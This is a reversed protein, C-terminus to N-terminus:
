RLALEVSRTEGPGVRLETSARRGDATRAVLRLPEPPLDGLTFREGAFTHVDVARWAGPGPQSSVELTFGGRAGRVVGEVAGGPSLRVVVTGAEPLTVTAEGARGGNRARVAVARGSTGMRADVAVRGDDGARAALAARGDDPRSLTVTAGPSPAGGPELVLIEVRREAATVEVPLRTTRGPEVRAFAPTAREDPRAETGPGALVRYEGAPLSMSFNGSADAAARAVQLAGSGGLMPVALVTTGAPPPRGGATARGALIGAEPLVLELAAERGDEVLAARAVGSLAADQRAVIEARGVVLPALLFRGDFDTRTEVPGQAALGDGRPLARVRVGALPRGAGDRVTGVVAGM